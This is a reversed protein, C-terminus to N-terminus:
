IKNQCECEACMRVMPRRSGFWLLLTQVVVLQRLAGLNKWGILDKNVADEMAIPVPRARCFVDKANPLLELNAKIGKISPLVEVSQQSM